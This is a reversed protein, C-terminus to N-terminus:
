KHILYTHMIHHPKKLIGRLYLLYDLLNLRIKGESEMKHETSHHMPDMKHEMSHHMLDMSHEMEHIEYEMQHHNHDMNDNEMSHDMAHDMMHDHATEILPTTVEYNNNTNKSTENPKEM